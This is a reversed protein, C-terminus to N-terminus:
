QTPACTPKATIDVSEVCSVPNSIARLDNAAASGLDTGGRSILTQYKGASLNNDSGDCLSASAGAFHGFCDSVLAGTNTNFIMIHWPPPIAAGGGDTSLMIWPNIAPHRSAYLTPAYLWSPFVGDSEAAIQQNNNGFIDSYTGIVGSYAVNYPAIPTNFSITETCVDTDNCAQLLNGNYDDYIMLFNPSRVPQNAKASLTITDGPHVGFTSPLVQLTV